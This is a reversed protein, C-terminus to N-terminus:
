VINLLNSVLGDDGIHGIEWAININHQVNVCAVSVAPHTQIKGMAFIWVPRSKM